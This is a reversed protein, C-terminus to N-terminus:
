FMDDLVGPWAMVLRFRSFFVLNELDAKAVPGPARRLRVTRWGEGKVIVRGLNTEQIRQAAGRTGDASASASPDLRANASVSM